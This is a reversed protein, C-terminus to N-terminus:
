GAGGVTEGAIVHRRYSEFGPHRSVDVGSAEASYAPLILHDHEALFCPLLPLGARLRLAPHIHGQVVRGAPREGDGHVIQWGGVLVPGAAPRLLFPAKSLGRDHNGALITLSRVGASEIWALLADVVASDPKAEFLDGAVILSHLDHQQLLARLPALAEEISPAPIAEGARRRTEAYGLHLDAVVVTRTARHIAARAPTLLWDNWIM